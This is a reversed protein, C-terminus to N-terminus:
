KNEKLKIKTIDEKFIAPQFDDKDRPHLKTNVLVRPLELIEEITETRAQEKFYQDYGYKQGHNRWQSVGMPTNKCSEYVEEREKEILNRFKPIWWDAIADLGLLKENPTYVYHDSWEERLGKEWDGPDHRPTNCPRHPFTCAHGEEKCKCQECYKKEAELMDIVAADQNFEEEQNM